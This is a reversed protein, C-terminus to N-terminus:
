PTKKTLRLVNVSMGPVTCVFDSSAGTFELTEDKVADPCDITNKAHPDGYFREASYADEVECDLRIRVPDPEESFNVIKLYIKEDDATAVSCMSPYNPLLTEAIKVGDVFFVAKERDYSCSLTHFTGDCVSVPIESQLTKARVLGRVVSASGNEIVLRIPELNFMKWPDTPVPLTRDYYSLPKPALLVGIGAPADPLIRVEASFSGANTDIDSPASSLATVCDVSRYFPPESSAEEPNERLVYGGPVAEHLGHVNREPLAESGNFRANRFETGDAGSVFPLGHLARFIPETEEESRVVYDGRNRSFLSFAYYSPIVHSRLNDFIILNPYWSHYHLHEFLPAYSCLRVKDQNREFGIMFMAEAVAGRLEGEYTQNVSFEGVFVDPKERDYDDYIGINEAYFEPMNYYHDDVIDPCLEPDSTNAVILLQPYKELVAKKFYLFRRNYEPGHNENGIELYKLRFPEPHGMKARYSGWESDAPGLAYELANLTDQLMDDIEEDNFYYPKRGQCTMGCNCVYLPEAGIDECLQLYEHFGLGNTTRYHWLLWFSPREWVPGITKRFFMATEMSFGEVICGGPFRMFGPHIGQLKEVLDRRLGHGLYTDCPMLSTFGLSLSGGDPAELVFCGNGTTGSATLEADYRAWEDSGVTIEARSFVESGERVSILLRVPSPAKAFCFFHYSKGDEQPVGCYGTNKLIGGSEFDAKLAAKRVPNLTDEFDPSFECNEGYWAPVPTPVVRNETVWSNMGEGNNFEDVWGTPSVFTKGGDESICGEPLISDEFSRNRLMEPYLGGDGARSIDEFFLGYLDPAAAFRKEASTVTIKSM